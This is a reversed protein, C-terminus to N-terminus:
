NKINNNFAFGPNRLKGAPYNITSNRRQLLYDVSLRGSGTFFLVLYVMLYHLAPEQKAFPDAGHIIGVAVLMTLILPVVALRTALGTIILVSCFVEAFVALSLSFGASMGMVPPFQVPTGSFLMIMKPFGHVLMLTGIGIRAILLGFDTTVAAPNVNIIRKM